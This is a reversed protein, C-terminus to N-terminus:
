GRNGSRGRSETSPRAENVNLSQGKLDTGNLGDIASQAEDKSPMEIFGFGRPEASYKDKIVSVSAIEGFAEFAEKLDDETVDRSLNGVYINARNKKKNQVIAKETEDKLIELVARKDQKAAVAAILTRLSIATERGRGIVKGMDGKGVRLKFIVTRKGAIENVQVEDPKDVLHKIIFEVFEKM